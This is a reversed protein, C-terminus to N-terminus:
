KGNKAHSYGIIAGIYAGVLYLQAGALCTISSSFVDLLGNTGSICADGCTMLRNGHATYNFLGGLLAGVFTTILLSAIGYLVAKQPNYANKISGRISAGNIIAIAVVPVVFVTFFVLIWGNYENVAFFFPLVLDFVIATMPLDKISFSGNGLLSNKSSEITMAPQENENNKTETKKEDM